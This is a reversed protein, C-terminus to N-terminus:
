QDKEEATGLRRNIEDVINKMEYIRNKRKLCEVQIWKTVEM